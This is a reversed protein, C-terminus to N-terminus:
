WPEVLPQVLTEGLNRLNRPTEPRRPCIRRPSGFPETVTSPEALTACTEHHRQDEPASGDQAALLNQPLGVLTVGLNWWPKVLTACAENDRQDEPASRRPSSFPEASPEVLTGGHRVWVFGTRLFRFMMDNSNPYEKPKNITNERM